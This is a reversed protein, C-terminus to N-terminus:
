SKAKSDVKFNNLRERPIGAVFSNICLLLISARAREVGYVSFQLLLRSTEALEPFDLAELDCPDCAAERLVDPM